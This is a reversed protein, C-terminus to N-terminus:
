YLLPNRLRAVGSMEPQVIRLELPSLINLVVRTEVWRIGADIEESLCTLSDGPSFFALHRQPFFLGEM